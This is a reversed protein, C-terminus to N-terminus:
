MVPQPSIFTYEPLRIITRQSLHSTRSDYGHLTPFLWSYQPWQKRCFTSPRVDHTHVSVCVLGKDQEYRHVSTV